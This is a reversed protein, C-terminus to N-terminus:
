CMIAICYRDVLTESLKPFCFQLSFRIFTPGLRLLTVNGDVCVTKCEFAPGINLGMRM